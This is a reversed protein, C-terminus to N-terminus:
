QLPGRRRIRLSRRSLLYRQSWSGEHVASSCPPKAVFECPPPSHQSKVPSAPAANSGPASVEWPAQSVVSVDEISIAEAEGLPPHSSVIFM